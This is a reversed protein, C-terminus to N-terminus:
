QGTYNPALRKIEDKEAQKCAELEQEIMKAQMELKEKEQAIEQEQVNLLKEERKLAQERGQKYLSQFVWNDYMMQQQPAMQAKQMTLMPGMQMMTNQAYQKSFMDSSQMYYMQRGFMSGPVNMMDDLSIAGNAINAAYQHMDRLRKSIALRKADIAYKQHLLDHKRAIFVLLGM